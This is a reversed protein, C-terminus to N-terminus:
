CDAFVQILRFEGISGGTSAIGYAFAKKTTFYQSIISMAAIFLCGTGVGVVIGQSLLVQWYRVSISTLMMGLVSLIAGIWILSQLYGADFVPGAAAGVTSLLFAQVSGIWSINSESEASLFDNQYYTQYVGYM